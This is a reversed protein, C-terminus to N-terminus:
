IVRNHPKSMPQLWVIQVPFAFSVMRQVYRSEPQISPSSDRHRSTISERPRGQPLTGNPLRFTLSIPSSISSHRSGGGNFSAISSRGADTAGDDVSVSGRPSVVTSPTASSVAVDSDNQSGPQEQQAEGDVVDTKNPISFSIKGPPASNPPSAGTLRDLTFYDAPPSAPPAVASKDRERDGNAPTPPAQALPSIDSGPSPNPPVEATTTMTSNPKVTPSDTLVSAPIPTTNTTPLSERRAAEQRSFADRAAQARAEEAAAKAAKQVSRNSSSRRLSLSSSKRKWKQALAKTAEMSVPLCRFISFPISTCRHTSGRRSPSPSTSPLPSSDTTWQQFTSTFELKPNHQCPPNTSSAANLKVVM